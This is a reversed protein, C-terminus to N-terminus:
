RSNIPDLYNTEFYLQIGPDDLDDALEIKNTLVDILFRRHATRLTRKPVGPYLAYIATESSYVTFMTYLWTIALFVTAGITVNKKTFM